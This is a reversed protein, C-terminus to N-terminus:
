ACQWYGYVRCEIQTYLGAHSAVADVGEGVQALKGARPSVARDPGAYAGVHADNEFLGVLGAGYSVWSVAVSIVRPKAAKGTPRAETGGFVAGQFNLRGIYRDARGKIWGGARSAVGGVFIEQTQAAICAVKAETWSVGAGAARFARENM